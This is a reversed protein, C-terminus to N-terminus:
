AIAGFLAYKSTVELAWARGRVDSTGMEIMEVNPALPAFSSRTTWPLNRSNKQMMQLDVYDCLGVRAVSIRSGSGSCM